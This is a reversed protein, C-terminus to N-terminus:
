EELNPSPDHSKGGCTAKGPSARLALRLQERRKETKKDSIVGDTLSGIETGM